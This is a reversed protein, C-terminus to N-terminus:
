LGPSFQYVLARTITWESTEEAISLPLPPRIPNPSGLLRPQVCRVTGDHERAGPPTRAEPEGAEHQRQKRKYRQGERGRPGQCARREGGLRLSQRLM